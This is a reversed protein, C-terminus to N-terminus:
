HHVIKMLSQRTSPPRVLQWPQFGPGFAPGSTPPWLAFWEFLGMGGASELLFVAVNAIILAQTVPPM